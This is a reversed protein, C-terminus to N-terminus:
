LILRKHLPMLRYFLYRQKPQILVFCTMGRLHGCCLLCHTTPPAGAQQRTVMDTILDDILTLTTRLHFAHLYKIITFFHIVLFSYKHLIGFISSCLKSNIFSTRTRSPIFVQFQRKDPLIFVQDVDDINAKM